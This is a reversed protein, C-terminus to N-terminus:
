KAVRIAIPSRVSVLGKVIGERDRETIATPVITNGEVKVFAPDRRNLREIWSSTAIFTTREPDIIGTGEGQIAMRSQLIGHMVQVCDPIAAVFGLDSLARVRTKVQDGTQFRSGLTMLMPSGTMKTAAEGDSQVNQPVEIHANQNVPFVFASQTDIVSRIGEYPDTGPATKPDVLPLIKHSAPLVRRMFAIIQLGFLVIQRPDERVSRKQVLTGVVQAINPHIYNESRVVSELRRLLAMARPIDTVAELNLPISSFDAPTYDSTGIGLTQEVGTGERDTMIASVKEAIQGLRDNRTERLAKLLMGPIITPIQNQRNSQPVGGIPLAARVTGQRITDLKVMAARAQGVINSVQDNEIRDLPVGGVLASSALRFVQQTCNISEANVGPLVQEYAEVRENIFYTSAM